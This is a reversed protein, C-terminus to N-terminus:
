TLADLITDIHIFMLTLEIDQVQKTADPVAEFGLTKYFNKAGPHAWLALGKAAALENVLVTAELVKRMLRKGIGKGQYSKDVAIQDLMVVPVQRPYKSSLVAYEDNCLMFVKMTAYGVGIDGDVAVYVRSDNNADAKALKKPAFSDLFPDGCGFNSFCPQREMKNLLQCDIDSTSM